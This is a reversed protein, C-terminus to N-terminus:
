KSAKKSSPLKGSSLSKKNNSKQKSAKKKVTKKKADSNEKKVEATSETKGDNTESSMNETSAATEVPTKDDKKNDKQTQTVSNTQTKKLEGCGTLASMSMVLALVIVAAGKATKKGNFIM